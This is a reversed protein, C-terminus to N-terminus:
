RNKGRGHSGVQLDEDHVIGRGVPRNIIEAGTERLNVVHDVGLIKSKGYRVVYGDPPTFRVIHEQQIGVRYESLLREFPDAAKKVCM